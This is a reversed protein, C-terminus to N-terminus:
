PTQLVERKFVFVVARPTNDIACVEWGKSGQKDLWIELNGRPIDPADKIQYEWQNM